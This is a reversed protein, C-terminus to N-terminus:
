IKGQSDGSDYFVITADRLTWNDSLLQPIVYEIQHYLDGPMQYRKGISEFGDDSMALIRQGEESKWKEVAQRRQIANAGQIIDEETLREQFKSVAYVFMEDPSQYEVPIEDRFPKAIKRFFVDEREYAQDSFVDEQYNNTSIRESRQIISIMSNIQREDFVNQLSVIVPDANIVQASPTINPVSFCNIRKLTCFTMCIYLVFVSCHKAEGFRIPTM